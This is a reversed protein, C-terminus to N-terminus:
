PAARHRRRKSLSLVVAGLALVAGSERPTGSAGGAGPRRAFHCGYFFPPPTTKVCLEKNAGNGTSVKGTLDKVHAAFCVHGKAGAIPREVRVSEGSGPLPATLVPKSPDSGVDGGQTQFVILALSETGSDDSARGPTVDFVFREELSSTCDDSARRVDWGIDVLGEFSPAALDEETGVTFAVDAGRGKSATGIGRLKPWKIVYHEGPILANPPEVTLLGEDRSFTVPVSEGQDAGGDPASEGRVLRVDEDLYEATAEYHATLKANPPVRKAGDPPFTDILDPKVCTTAQAPLALGVVALALAVERILPV